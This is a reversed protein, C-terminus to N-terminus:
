EVVTVIASGTSTLLRIVHKAFRLNILTVFPSITM